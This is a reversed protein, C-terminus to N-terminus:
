SMTRKTVESHETTKFHSIAARSLAFLEGVQVLTGLRVMDRLEELARGPNTFGFRASHTSLLREVPMPGWKRIHDMMTYRRGPYRPICSHSPM